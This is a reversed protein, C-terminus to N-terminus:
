GRLSIAQHLASEIPHLAERNSNTLVQQEQAMTTVRLGYTPKLRKNIAIAVVLLAIGLPLCIGGTIRMDVPDQADSNFFILMAGMFLFFIGFTLPWHFASKRPQIAVIRLSSIASIAYTASGIILRTKTVSINGHMYIIDDSEINQNRFHAQNPRAYLLTEMKCHPCAITQGVANSEFEIEGSCLNCFCRAKM